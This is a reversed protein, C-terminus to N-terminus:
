NAQNTMVENIEDHSLGVFESKEAFKRGMWDKESIWKPYGAYANNFHRLKFPVFYGKCNTCQYRRTHPYGKEEFPVKKNCLQCRIIKNGM